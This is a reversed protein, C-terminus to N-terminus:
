SGIANATVEVKTGEPLKTVRTDPTLYGGGKLDIAALGGRNGKYRVVVFVHDHGQFDKWIVLTGGPLSGVPVTEEDVREITVTNM